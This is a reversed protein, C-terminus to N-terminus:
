APVALGLVSAIQSAVARARGSPENAILIRASATVLEITRTSTKIGVAPGIELRIIATRCVFGRRIWLLCFRRKIQVGHRDIRVHQYTLVFCLIAVLGCFAIFGVFGVFHRVGVPENNGTYTVFGAGAIPGLALLAFVLALVRTMRTPTTITM